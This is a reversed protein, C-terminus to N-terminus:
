ILLEPSAQIIVTDDEYNNVNGGPLHRDQLLNEQYNSLNELKSQIREQELELENLDKKLM